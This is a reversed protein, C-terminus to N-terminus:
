ARLYIYVLTKHCFFEFSSFNPCQKYSNIIDAPGGGNHASGIRLGSKEDDKVRIQFHFHM